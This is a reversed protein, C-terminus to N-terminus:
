PSILREKKTKSLYDVTLNELLQSVSLNEDIARKQLEKYVKEDMTLNIRKKKM